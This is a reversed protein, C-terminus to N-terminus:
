QEWDEGWASRHERLWEEQTAVYEDRWSRFGEELVRFDVPADRSFEELLAEYACKLYAGLCAYMSNQYRNCRSWRCLVDRFVDVTHERLSRTSEEYQDYIQALTSILEAFFERRAYEDSCWPHFDVNRHLSVVQHGVLYAKLSHKYKEEAITRLTDIGYKQALIYMYVDTNLDAAFHFRAYDDPLTYYELIYLYRLMKDIAWPEKEQLHIHAFAM